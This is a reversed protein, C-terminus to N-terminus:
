RIRLRNDVGLAGGQLANNIAALMEARSGVEGELIAIAGRVDVDIESADVLPSWLLEGRVRDAIERDSGYGTAGAHAAPALDDFPYYTLGYPDYTTLRVERVARLRNHVSQVGVTRAAVLEATRREFSSAVRGTLETKGSDVRVEIKANQLYPHRTLASTLRREVAEANELTARVTLRNVVKAVGVTAGADREAAAKASLSGVEGSLFVTDDYVHVRVGYGAVDPDHLLAARVAAEIADDTPEPLESRRGADRAWWAVELGEADVQSVGEVWASRMVRDREAASGVTGRLSVGGGDVEVQVLAANALADWRLRQEIESRVDADSRESFSRVSLEAKVGRLGVVASAVVEALAAEGPSHVEGTLTAVGSSVRVDIAEDSMAPDGRLAEVVLPQLQEDSLHTPPRVQLRNVVARVGRVSKAELEATRRALLSTVEGELVVVADRSTVQPQHDVLAPDAQLERRVAEVIAADSFELRTGPM